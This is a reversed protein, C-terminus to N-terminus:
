LFPFKRRRRKIEKERESKKRHIHTQQTEEFGKLGCRDIYIVYTQNVKEGQMNRVQRKNM